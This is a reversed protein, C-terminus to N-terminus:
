GRQPIKQRVPMAGLSLVTDKAPDQDWALEPEVDCRFREEPMVQVRLPELAQSWQQRNMGKVDPMVRVRTVDSPLRRRQLQRDINNRPTQPAQLTPPPPADQAGADMVACRATAIMGLVILRVSLSWAPLALRAVIL